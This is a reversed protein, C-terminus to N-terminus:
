RVREFVAYGFRLRPNGVVLSYGPDALLRQCNYHNKFSNIDDLLVYRAGYVLDLEARATFESGDILVADFDDIGHERKVLEIGDLPIGASALYALDGARWGLVQELSFSNLKTPTVRYFGRVEEERAFREPPVSSANYARVFPRDAYRARLEAFREKVAELCFLMRGDPRREIGSVFARTSGDGSASGIELMTRVDPERAVRAIQEALEDGSIEGPM